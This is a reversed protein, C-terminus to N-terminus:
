IAHLLLTSRKEISKGLEIYMLLLAIVTFISIFIGIIFLIGSVLYMLDKERSYLQFNLVIIGIAGILFFIAGIILLTVNVIVLQLGLFMSVISTVLGVLLLIGGPIYGIRILISSTRYEPDTNALSKVGPIFLAYLGVLSVVLGTLILVLVVLATAALFFFAELGGDVVGLGTVLFVFIAIVAIVSGILTMLVGRQMRKFSEILMSPSQQTSSNM